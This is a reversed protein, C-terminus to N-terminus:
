YVMSWRKLNLMFHAIFHLCLIMHYIFTIFKFTNGTSFNCIHLDKLMLFLYSQDTTPLSSLTITFISSNCRFLTNCTSSTNNYNRKTDELSCKTVVAACLVYDLFMDANISLNWKEFIPMDNWRCGGYQIYMHLIRSWM